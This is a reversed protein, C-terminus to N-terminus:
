VSKSDIKSLYNVRVTREKMRCINDYYSIWTM